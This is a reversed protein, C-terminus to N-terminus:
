YHSYIYVIEKDTTICHPIYFEEKFTELEEETAIYKSPDEMEYEPEEGRERRGIEEQMNNNICLQSHYQFGGVKLLDWGGEKFYVDEVREILVPANDKIDTNKNVFERLQKMTLSLNQKNLLEEKTM